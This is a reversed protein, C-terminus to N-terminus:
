GDYDEKGNIILRADHTVSSDVTFYDGPETPKIRMEEFPIGDHQMNIVSLTGPIALVTEFLKSRFLPAGIGINKESLVGHDEDILTNRIVALVEYEVYTSEVEVDFSLSLPQANSKQVDLAITPDTLNLLAKRIIDSNSNGIYWIQIVPRQRLNNWRWQAHAAKVGALGKTAAIFDPVSIARGLLLASQPAHDRIGKADEEDSGGTASFPNTVSNLRKVPKALQNITNAPPVAAGAGYRYSAIINDTGSPLRRGRIGDGFSILSEQDDNQRVIFVEDNEGCGYFSAVEKWQIGDVWVMLTSRVGREDDSTSAAIYTLPSKKLKFTQLTEAADGSGLIENRITEGRTAHIVNGLVKIPPTLNYTGNSGQFDFDGTTYNLTGNGQVSIENVDKLVFTGPSKADFPEQIKKGSGPKVKLPSSETITTERQLILGDVKIFAYHVQLMSAHNNMWDSAGNKKRSSDNLTGDLSLKTAPVLMPEVSVELNNGNEDLTKYDGGTPIKMMVESVKNLKFWRFENNKSVLINQGAKLQRYLGNLILETYEIPKIIENRQYSGEVKEMKRQISFLIGQSVPAINIKREIVSQPNSGMTWLGASQTSTKLLVDEPIGADILELSPDITIKTYKEEDDGVISERKVVKHVSNINHVTAIFIDEQQLKINEDQLLLTTFNDNIRKPRQPCIKWSNNLPHISTDNSLEFVQPSEDDFAESRFATGKSLSLAKRGEAIATMVVSSSVAPRPIYGLLGTLKRLSSRLQATRVYSENAISEDYFTLIDCVYAWMELLMIGLDGKERAHWQNLEQHERIAKLMARRFEPFGDRQRPISNMGAPIDLPSFIAKEDCPCTM